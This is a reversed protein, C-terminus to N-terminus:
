EAVYQDRGVAKIHGYGTNRCLYGETCWNNFGGHGNNLGFCLGSSLNNHNTKGTIREYEKVIEQRTLPRGLIKNQNKVFQILQFKITTEIKKM